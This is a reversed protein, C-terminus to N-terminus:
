GPWPGASSQQQVAEDPLQLLMEYVEEATHERGETQVPTLHMVPEGDILLEPLGLTELILSNVVIDCAINYLRHRLNRGRTCHRLVCHMLEHLMVFRLEENGLSQAFAPDFVIHRMDTYATGCHTFGFTLHLLLRGYFPREWLLGARLDTLRRSLARLDPASM